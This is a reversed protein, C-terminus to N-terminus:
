QTSWVFQPFYKLLHSYGVVQAAEESIQICTLFCCNSSSMSFCVSELNPFYICPQINDGQKNLKYTSYMMLFAPSSSSCAPILTAPLFILLRLYAGGNHHFHLVLSGRSSLSLLSHFLQKLVKVMWFVLIM